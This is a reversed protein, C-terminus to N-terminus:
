KLAQIGGDSLICDCSLRRAEEEGGSKLGRVVAYGERRLRSADGFPYGAPVYVRKAHDPRRCHELVNEMFFTVGCAPEVTSGDLGAKYRGGRGLVAGGEVSFVTFGMGCHYEFGRNELVDLTVPMEPAQAKLIEVIETLRRCEANAESPLILGKLIDCVRGCEGYAQFLTEFLPKAEKGKRGMDDLKSSAAYFDKEDLFRGLDAADDGDFSFARCLAPFLTPLNLDFSYEKIGLEKVAENATLLIEADADASDAGILEAGVQLVERAPSIRGGGVRLVHGRYALRLPRAENKLRTSAIRGIQPTVDARIGMVKGSDPDMIRFTQASIDSQVGHLLTEEFEALPPSVRVYGYGDFVSLIKRVAEDEYLAYPPLVDTLGVPLLGTAATKKM